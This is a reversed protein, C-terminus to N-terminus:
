ESKSEPCSLSFICSTAFKIKSILKRRRLSRRCPSHTPNWHLPARFSVPNHQPCLLQVDLKRIIKLVEPNKASPSPDSTGEASQVLIVEKEVERLAEYSIGQEAGDRACTIHFAKSCKGKTCQIPAGHAKHRPKSCASCKQFLVKMLATPPFAGYSRGPEM